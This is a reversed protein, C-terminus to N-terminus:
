RRSRGDRPMAPLPTHAPHQRVETFRGEQAVFEGTGPQDAAYQKGGKQLWYSGEIAGTPQHCQQAALREGGRHPDPYPPLAPDLPQYGVYM